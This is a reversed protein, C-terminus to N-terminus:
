RSAIPSVLTIRGQEVLSARQDSLNIIVRTESALGANGLLLALLAIVCNFCTKM